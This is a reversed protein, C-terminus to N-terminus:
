TRRRKRASSAGAGPQIGTGRALVISVVLAVTLIIVGTVGATRYGDVTPLTAGAPISAALATGALASGAALGISRLVQYFSLASGTEKPPVGSVIQVPNVAFVCGVGFGALAMVVALLAASGIAVLYLGLAAILLLCSTVVVKEPSMLEIMQRAARSAAFSALSFPVLMLGAAAPSAGLGYGTGVPAEVLRVVISLLPYIGASILVVTLNASYVSRHRLLRVDVLPRPVHLEWGVWTVIVAVSVGALGVVRASTWGWGTGQALVLLLGTVAVALLVVGVPDISGSSGTSSRPVVLAATVLAIVSVAAGFWFAAALGSLQVLLGALPYGIGIGIATTVGLVIIAPGRREVPLVERAVTIALPVLALAVGQLARGILLWTFGLPLAALVCGVAVTSVTALIVGKRRHTDGLRGIAPAAVAGVLLSITLAWQSDVVSVDDVTVITPLLPAGLSGVAASVVGLFVLTPLLGGVPGPRARGTSGALRSSGVVPFTARGEDDTLSMM